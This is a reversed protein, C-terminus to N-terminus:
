GDFGDATCTSDVTCGGEGDGLPLECDWCGISLHMLNESDLFKLMDVDHAHEVDVSNLVWSGMAVFRHKGPIKPALEAHPKAEYTHGPLESALIGAGAIVVTPRDGRQGQRKALERERRRREARASM